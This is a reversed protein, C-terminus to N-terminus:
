HLIFSYKDLQEDTMVSSERAAGESWDSSAGDRRGILPRPSLVWHSAPSAGWCEGKTVTGRQGDHHVALVRQPSGLTSPTAVVAHDGPQLSVLPGALVPVALAGLTVEDLLPLPDHCGLHSSYSTMEFLDSMIDWTARLLCCAASSARARLMLLTALPSAM